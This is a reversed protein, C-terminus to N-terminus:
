VEPPDPNKDPQKSGKNYGDAPPDVPKERKLVLYLGYAIAVFGLVLAIKDVM